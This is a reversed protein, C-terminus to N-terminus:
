KIPNDIYGATANDRPIIKCPSGICLSHAPVDVNVFSNPAIMVDEGITIGGIVSSNSGIWVNDKIVPSGKHKGRRSSGLTVGKFVTENKGIVTHPNIAVAGRHVLRFGEGITCGPEIEYGYKISRRKLIMRNLLVRIKIRSNLINYNCKRFTRLWRFEPNAICVYISSFKRDKGTIRYLDSRILKKISKDM